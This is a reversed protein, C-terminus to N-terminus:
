KHQQLMWNWYAPDSYTPDWANHAAEPFITLKANGGSRNVANVMNISETVQVTTDLAGHYAHIPISKLRAANWYMGGGCVPTLAAFLEPRTMALQWATYGGMSGGTLYLRNKDTTPSKAVFDTFALLQEFIEFWTDAYCQPAYIRLPIDLKEANTIAAAGKLISLDNGRSGAGHLSLLTPYAADLATCSEHVALLYRLRGFQKEEIQFM